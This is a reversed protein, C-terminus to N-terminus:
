AGPEVNTTQEAGPHKLRQMGEAFDRVSQARDALVIAHNDHVELVGGDILYFLEQRGAQVKVVGRELAALLPAHHALVAFSGCLGPATISAIQDDFVKGEPTVLTLTFPKM